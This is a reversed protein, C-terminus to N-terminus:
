AQKVAGSNKSGSKSVANKYVPCNGMASNLEAKEDNAAKLQPVISNKGANYALYATSAAILVTCGVLWWNTSNNGGKNGGDNGSLESYTKLVRFDGTM